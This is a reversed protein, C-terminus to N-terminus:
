LRIYFFGNTQLYDATLQQNAPNESLLFACVNRKAELLSTYMAHLYFEWFGDPRQRIIRGHGYRRAIQGAVLRYNHSIGNRLQWLERAEQQNLGFWQEACDRFYQGNQGRPPTQKNIVRAIVDVATCFLSVVTFTPLKQQLGSYQVDTLRIGGQTSLWVRPLLICFSMDKELGLLISKQIADNPEIHGDEIFFSNIIEQPNM